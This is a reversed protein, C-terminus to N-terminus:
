RGTFDDPPAPIEHPIKAMEDSSKIAKEHQSPMEPLGSSIYGIALAAAVDAAYPKWDDREPTGRTEDKEDVARPEDSIGRVM